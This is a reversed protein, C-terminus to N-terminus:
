INKMADNMRQVANRKRAMYGPKGVIEILERSAALFLDRHVQLQEEIYMPLLPKNSIVAMDKAEDVASAVLDLQNVAYTRSGKIEHKPLLDVNYWEQTNSAYDARHTKSAEEGGTMQLERLEHLAEFTKHHLEKISILDAWQELRVHPPRKRLSNVVKLYERMQAAAPFQSYDVVPNRVRMDLIRMVKELAFDALKGEQEIDDHYLKKTTTYVFMVLAVLLNTFICLAAAMSFAYYLPGLIPESKSYDAFLTEEVGGDTDCVEGWTVNVLSTTVSSVSVLCHKPFKVFELDFYRVSAENRTM